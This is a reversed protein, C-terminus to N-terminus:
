QGRFFACPGPTKRGTCRAFGAGAGVGHEIQQASVVGGQGVALRQGDAEAVLLKREFHRHNVADVVAMRRHAFMEHQAIGAGRRKMNRVQVDLGEAKRESRRVFDRQERLVAGNRALGKVGAAGFIRAQQDGVSEGAVADRDEALHGAVHLARLDVAPVIWSWTRMPTMYSVSRIGKSRVRAPPSSNVVALADSTGKAVSVAEVIRVPAQRGVGRLHELPADVLLARGPDVVRPLGELAVDIM